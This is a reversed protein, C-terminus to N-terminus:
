KKPRYIERINSSFPLHSRYHHCNLNHNELNRIAKRKSNTGLYTKRIREKEETSLVFKDAKHINLKLLENQYKTRLKDFAVRPKRNFVSSKNGAGIYSSSLSMRRKASM